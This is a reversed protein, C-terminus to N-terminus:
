GVKIGFEAANVASETWAGGGDPNTESIRHKTTYNTSGIAQGADDSETGNSRIVTKISFPSADTERCDENIQIGKIAGITGPLAGYTYLDKDDTSGAEVYTTDDDVTTEDVMASNDAGASPTWDNTTGEGDPFVAVVKVNGLFDNNVSGATDCVYWDDWWVTLASSPKRLNLNTVQASGGNQTDQSTLNLVTVEGVRLEVAGTSNNITAKLGVHYWNNALLNLGSTAGLLTTNRYVGLEGDAQLRLAVHVTAGDRCELLILNDVIESVKLALGTVITSPTGLSFSTIENTGGNISKLSKSESFRGDDIELAAQNGVVTYRNTLGVADVDNTRGYGEFGDVLLLSM